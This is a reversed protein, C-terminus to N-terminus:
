RRRHRCKSVQWSCVIMSLSTGRTEQRSCPTFCSKTGHASAPERNVASNSASDIVQSFHPEIESTAPSRRSLQSSHAPMWSRETLRPSCRLRRRGSAFMPM